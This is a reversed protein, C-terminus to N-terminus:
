RYAFDRGSGRGSPTGWTRQNRPRFYYGSDLVNRHFLMSNDAGPYSDSRAYFLKRTYPFWKISFPIFKHFPELMLLGKNKKAIETLIDPKIVVKDEGFDQFMKEVNLKKGLTKETLQIWQITVLTANYKKALIYQTEIRNLLSADDADQTTIWEGQAIKFGYNRASFGANIDYGRWNTRQPPRFPLKYYHVRPDKKALAEVVEQTTDTSWDDVIIIELNRYTQNMMSEVARGIRSAENYTPIVVSILPDM